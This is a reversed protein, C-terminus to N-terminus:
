FTLIMFNVLQIDHVLDENFYTSIKVERQLFYLYLYISYKSIQIFLTVNKCLKQLLM